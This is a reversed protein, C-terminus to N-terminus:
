HINSMSVASRIASQFPAIRGKLTTCPIGFELATRNAGLMSENPWSCLKKPTSHTAAWKHALALCTPKGKKNKVTHEIQECKYVEALPQISPTTSLVYPFPRCYTSTLFQSSVSLAASLFGYKTSCIVCNDTNNSYTMHFIRIIYQFEHELALLCCLQTEHCLSYSASVIKEGRFTASM